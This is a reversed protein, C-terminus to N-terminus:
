SEKLAHEIWVFLWGHLYVNYVSVLIVTTDTQQARVTVIIWQDTNFTDSLDLVHTYGIFVINLRGELNAVIIVCNFKYRYLTYMCTSEEM